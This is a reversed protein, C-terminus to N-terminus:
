KHPRVELPPGCIVEPGRREAGGPAAHPSIHSAAKARLGLGPREALGPPRLPPFWGRDSDPFLHWLPCMMVARLYCTIVSFLLYYSIVVMDSLSLSAIHSLRESVTQLAIAEKLGPLDPLPASSKLFM